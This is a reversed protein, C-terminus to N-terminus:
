KDYSITTNDGAAAPIPNAILSSIFLSWNYLHRAFPETDVIVVQRGASALAHTSHFRAM